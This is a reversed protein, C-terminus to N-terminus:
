VQRFFDKWQFFYMDHGFASFFIKYRQIDPFFNKWWLNPSFFISVWVLDGLEWGAGGGWSLFDFPRGGFRGFTGFNHLRSKIAARKAIWKLQKKLWEAYIVNRMIIGNRREGWKRLTQNPQPHEPTVLCVFLCSVLTFYFFQGAIYWTSLLAFLIVLIKWAM